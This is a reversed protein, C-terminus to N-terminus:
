VFFSFELLALALSYFIGFLFHIKGSEREFGFWYPNEPNKNYELQARRLAKVTLPLILFPLVFAIISTLNKLLSREGFIGWFLCITIIWHIYPYIHLAKFLVLTKRLGLITAATKIGAAADTLRDRMDNGFLIVAVLSAIPLSIFVVYVATSIHVNLPKDLFEIGFCSAMIGMYFVPGMLFFVFPTGLGHYKFKLLTAYNSAGLVGILGVGLLSWNVLLVGNEFKFSLYLGISVTVALFALALIFVQRTTAYGQMIQPTTVHAGPVDDVGSKNDGWTNLLNCTIQLASAAIFALGLRSWLLSMTDKPISEDFLSSIAFAFVFVMFPVATATLSWPRCLFFWAKLKEM